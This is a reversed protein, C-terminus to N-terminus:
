GVNVDEVKLITITAVNVSVTTTVWCTSVIGMPVVFIKMKVSM